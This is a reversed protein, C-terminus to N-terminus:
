AGPALCAQDCGKRDPWQSCDAVRLEPPGPVATAAAHRADVQIEATVGTEPCRVIRPKRYRAFVSAVIPLLVYVIATAAIALLLIWPGTMIEGGANGNRSSLV